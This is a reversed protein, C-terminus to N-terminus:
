YHIDGKEFSTNDQLRVFTINLLLFCGKLFIGQLQKCEIVQFIYFCHRTMGDLTSM